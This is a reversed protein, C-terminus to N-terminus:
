GLTRACNAYNESFFIRHKCNKIKILREKELDLKQDINFSYKYLRTDSEITIQVIRTVFGEDDINTLCGTHIIIQNRHRNLDKHLELLENIISVIDTSNM